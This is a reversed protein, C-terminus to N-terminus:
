RAPKEVGKTVASIRKHADYLVRRQQRLSREIESSNALVRSLTAQLNAVGTLAAIYGRGAVFLLAALVVIVVMCILPVILAQTM